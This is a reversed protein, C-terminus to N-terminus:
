PSESDPQSMMSLLILGKFSSILIGERGVIMCLDATDQLELPNYVFKGIKINRHRDLIKIDQRKPFSLLDNLNTIIFCLSSHNRPYFLSLAFLSLGM